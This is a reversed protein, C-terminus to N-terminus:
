AARVAQCMKEFEDGAAMSFDTNEEARVLAVVAQGAKTRPRKVQAALDFLEDGVVESDPGIGMEIYRKAVHILKTEM